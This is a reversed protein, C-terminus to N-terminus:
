AARRFATSLAKIHQPNTGCCGGFISAGSKRWGRAYNALAAPEIIGSGPRLMVLVGVFGVIVAGLRRWGVQEGLMPVSLATIILPMTFLLAYADALPLRSLARFFLLSALLM